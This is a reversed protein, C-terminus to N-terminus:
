VKLNSVSIPCQIQLNQLEKQLHQITMMTLSALTLWSPQNQVLKIRLPQIRSMAASLRKGLRRSKLRASEMARLLTLESTDAVRTRTNRTSDRLDPVHFIARKSLLAM